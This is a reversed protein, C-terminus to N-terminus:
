EGAGGLPVSANLFTPCHQELHPWLISVSTFYVGSCLYSLLLAFFTTFVALYIISEKWSLNNKTKKIIYNISYSFLLFLVVLLIFLYVSRFEFAM